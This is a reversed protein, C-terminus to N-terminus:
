PDDGVRLAALQGGALAVHIHEEVVGEGPDRPVAADSDHDPTGLHDTKYTRAHHDHPRRSSSTTTWAACCGTWTRDPSTGTSRPPPRSTTTSSPWCALKSRPWTPSIM